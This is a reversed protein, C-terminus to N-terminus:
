PHLASGITALARADCLGEGSNGLRLSLSAKEAAERIEVFKFKIHGAEDRFRVVLLWFGKGDPWAEYEHSPFRRSLKKAVSQAEQRSRFMQLM